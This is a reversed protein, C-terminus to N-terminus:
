PAPAQEMRRALERRLTLNEVRAGLMQQDREALTQQLAQIVLQMEAIASQEPSPAPAPTPKKM